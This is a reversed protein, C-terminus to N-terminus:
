LDDVMEKGVLVVVGVDELDMHRPLVRPDRADLGQPGDRVPVLALSVVQEADDEFAVAVEPAGEKGVVPLAVREPLVPLVRIEVVAEVHLGRGLHGLARRRSLLDADPGEIESRGVPVHLFLVKAVTGILLSSDGPQRISSRSTSSIIRLMPGCFGDVWPTRRMSSLVSPSTTRAARGWM